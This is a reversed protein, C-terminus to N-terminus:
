DLPRLEEGGRDAGPRGAMPRGGPRSRAVTLGLVAGWVLHAAIMTANRGWPQRTAPRMLGLSPIWGLYSGAWVALGFLAGTAAPPGPVARQWLAYLSGAAAGYGFHGATTLAQRGRPGLREPLGTPAVLGMTVVHPPLARHREDPLARHLGLMVASMPLTAALGSTSARMVDMALARGPRRPTSREPM